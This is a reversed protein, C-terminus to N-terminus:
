RTPSASSKGPWLRDFDALTQDKLLRTHMEAVGNITHSGICALHAMRISRPPTEDIISIRRVIDEDGPYKFRVQDLFRYNIEYIIELHRPLLAGFLSVPWKESAEPLLTHNTYSFTRTTIELGTGVAHLLHRILLRMLEPM